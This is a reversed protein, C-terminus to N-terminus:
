TPEPLADLVDRVLESRAKGVKAAIADLKATLAATAHFGIRGMTPPSPPGSYFDRIGTGHVVGQRPAPVSEAPATSRKRPSPDVKALKTIGEMSYRSRPDPTLGPIAPLTPINEEIRSRISHKQASSLNLM